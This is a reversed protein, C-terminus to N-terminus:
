AWIATKVDTFCTWFTWIKRNSLRFVHVVDLVIRPRPTFVDEKQVRVSVSVRAARLGYVFLSQKPTKNTQTTQEIPGKRGKPNRVHEHILIKNHNQSENYRTHTQNPDPQM